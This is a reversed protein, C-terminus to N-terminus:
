RSRERKMKAVENQHELMAKAQSASQYERRVHGKSWTSYREHQRAADAATWEYPWTIFPTAGPAQRVGHPLEHGPDLNCVHTPGGCESVKVAGCIM